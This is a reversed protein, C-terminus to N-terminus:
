MRLMGCRVLANCLKLFHFIEWQSKNGTLQVEADADGDAAHFLWATLKLQELAKPERTAPGHQVDDREQDCGDLGVRGLNGGLHVDM